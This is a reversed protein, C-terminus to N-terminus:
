LSLQKILVGKSENNNAYNNNKLDKYFYKLLLSPNM